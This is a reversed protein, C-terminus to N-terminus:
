PKDTPPTPLLSFVEQIQWETSEGFPKGIQSIAQQAICETLYVKHNWNTNWETKRGDKTIWRCKIVFGESTIITDDSTHHHTFYIQKSFNRDIDKLLRERIEIIILSVVIAVSVFCIIFVLFVWLFRLIDM